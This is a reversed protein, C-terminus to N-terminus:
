WLCPAPPSSLPHFHDLSVFKWSYSFYTSPIYLYLIIKVILVVMHQVSFNDLSYIRLTKVMLFFHKKKKKPKTYIYVLHHINVLSVTTIM